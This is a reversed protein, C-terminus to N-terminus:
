ANRGWSILARGLALMERKTLDSKCRNVRQSVVQVNGPIYGKSPNIRDLSPTNDRPGGFALRIGLVPCRKPIHIDSASITCEKGSEKARRRAAFLMNKERNKAVWAPRNRRRIEKIREPNVKRWEVVRVMRLQRNRVDACAPCRKASGHRGSIGAGCDACSRPERVRKRVKGRKRKAEALFRDMPDEFM